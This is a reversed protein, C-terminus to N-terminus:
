YEKIEGDPYVLKITKRHARSAKRVTSWTGSHLQEKFEAPAAILTESLFVIHTNRFLYEFPEAIKTYNKCFARKSSNIPPHIHIKYGIDYAIEHAEEDAGICDGHHLWSENPIYLQTLIECVSVKQKPTMGKQTGTFGIHM